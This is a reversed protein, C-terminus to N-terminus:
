QAASAFGRAGQASNEELGFANMPPEKYASNRPVIPFLLFRVINESPSFVPRVQSLIDEGTEADFGLNLILETSNKDQVM